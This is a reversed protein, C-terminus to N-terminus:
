ELADRSVITKTYVPVEWQYLLMYKHSLDNM